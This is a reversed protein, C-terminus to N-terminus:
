ILSKNFYTKLYLAALLSSIFFLPFHYLGFMAVLGVIQVVLLISWGKADKCSQNIFREYGYWLWVSIFVLWGSLIWIM